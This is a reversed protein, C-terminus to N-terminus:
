HVVSLLGLLLLKITGEKWEVKNMESHVQTDVPFRPEEQTHGKWATSEESIKNGLDPCGNLIAM